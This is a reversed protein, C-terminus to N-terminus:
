KKELVQSFYRGRPRGMTRNGKFKLELLRRRIRTRDM